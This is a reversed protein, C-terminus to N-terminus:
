VIVWCTIIFILVSVLFNGFLWVTAWFGNLRKGRFKLIANEFYLEGWVVICYTGQRGKFVNIDELLHLGVGLVCFSACLMAGPYQLCFLWMIVNWHIGHFLCHRHYKKKITLDMDSINGFIIGLYTAFVILTSDLVYYYVLCGIVILIPVNCCLHKYGKM